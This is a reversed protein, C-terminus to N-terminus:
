QFFKLGDNRAQNAVLICSEYLPGSKSYTIQRIIHKTPCHFFSSSLDGKESEGDGQWRGRQCVVTTMWVMMM